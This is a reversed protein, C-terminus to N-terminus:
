PLLRVEDLYITRPRELKGVFVGMGAVRSLDLKRGKPANLVDDLDILLENWGSQLKFSNNYRDSYRNAHFHDHIRFHLQLPDIEPNFVRLTVFRYNSWDRPFDKLGLGSYRQTNLNVQLSAKGSFPVNTSVVRKASGRWRSAELSTEFGSLLPFQQRAILDDVIVKGTPFLSWVVLILVPVQLSRLRFFPLSRRASTLFFLGISSGIIDNGLDLWTGERGITSQLLETLGGVAITLLLVEGVLPWFSRDDKWLGYLYTWLAFSLLHGAGWVYRYSRLSDFEPGGVFLLVACALAIPLLFVLQHQRLISMKM